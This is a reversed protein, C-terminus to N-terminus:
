DLVVIDMVPIPLINKANTSLAKKPSKKTNAVRVDICSGSEMDLDVPTEDPQIVEGDFEFTLNELPLKRQDAYKKMVELFKELKHARIETKKRTDNSQMKLLLTNSNNMNEEDEDYPICDIIDCIRIGLSEPTDTLKINNDGLCLLFGTPKLGHLDAVKQFISKFEEKETVRVKSVKFQYKVKIAIERNTDEENELVIPSDLNLINNCKAFLLKNEEEMRKSERATELEIERIRRKASATLKIVENNNSTDTDNKRKSGKKRGRSRAQKKAAMQRLLEKAKSSLVSDKDDEEIEKICEQDNKLCKEKNDESIEEDDDEFIFSKQYVEMNEAWIQDIRTDFIRDEPLIEDDSDM